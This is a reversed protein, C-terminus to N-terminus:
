KIAEEIFKDIPNEIFRQYTVEACQDLYQPKQILELADDSLNNIQDKPLISM